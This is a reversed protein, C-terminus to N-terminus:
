RCLDVAWVAGKNKKRMFAAAAALLASGLGKHQFDPHTAMGGLGAVWIREHGVKIERKPICLQTVLQDQLYGLLVWDPTAWQINSLESDMEGFALRDLADFERQLEPTLGAYPIFDINLDTMHNCGPSAWCKRQM